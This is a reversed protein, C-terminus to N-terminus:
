HFFIVIATIDDIVIEEQLWRQTSEEILSKCAAETENNQYYKMIIKGVDENSIFETVGDSCLVMAKDKQYNRKIIKTDPTAIVGLSKALKDGFSRSMALGPYEDYQVWVRM